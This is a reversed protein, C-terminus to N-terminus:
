HGLLHRPNAKLCAAAMKRLPHTSMLRTTADGFMGLTVIGKNLAAPELKTFTESGLPACHRYQPTYLRKGSYDITYLDTKERSIAGEAGDWEEIGHVFTNRTFNVGILLIQANREWLKYHAGGKGCPTTINEEGEILADAGAGIAAVSHTPHLSRCVGPRTRFIEPLIGVCSPTYLVDMVPNTGAQVHNWTHAPLVLLGDKMFEMLTDLVADARGEVQGIAKYSSHVLLTGKQNIGLRALNSLLTQKTHM